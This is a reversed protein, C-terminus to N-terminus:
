EEKRAGERRTLVALHARLPHKMVTFFGFHPRLDVALEGKAERWEFERVLNATFYGMHLMAVAMGPCVRRGADFPIMRIEGGSGAAAVLSISEGGKDALFREPKFEDPNVWTAKDQALSKLPFLVNTGTPIRQGDHIIDDQESVQRFVLTATPYLRLVEM